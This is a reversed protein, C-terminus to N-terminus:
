ITEFMLLKIYSIIKGKYAAKLFDISASNHM